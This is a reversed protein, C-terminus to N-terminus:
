KPPASRFRAQYYLCGAEISDGKQVFGCGHGNGKPVHISFHEEKRLSFDM